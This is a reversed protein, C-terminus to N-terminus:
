KGLIHHAEGALLPCDGRPAFSSGKKGEKDGLGASGWCPESFGVMSSWCSAVLPSIPCNAYVFSRNWFVCGFSPLSADAKGFVCAETQM